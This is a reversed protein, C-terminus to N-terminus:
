TRTGSDHTDARGLAPAVEALRRVATGFDADYPTGVVVHDAGMARHVSIADALEDPGSEGIPLYVVLLRDAGIQERVRATFEPPRGAPLSGDAMEGAVATMRPGNAALLVPYERDTLQQLYERATTLPSGYDRGVSAAQQPWGVGVGLVFRGPFAQALQTVAAHATQAPRAWVNAICTGVVIDETATLWLASRVLADAGVVENTWIARYGSAELHRVGEVQEGTPPGSVSIGIGAGFPGLRARLESM